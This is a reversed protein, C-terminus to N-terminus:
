NKRSDPDDESVEFTGEMGKYERLIYLWKLASPLDKEVKARAAEYKDRDLIWCNM